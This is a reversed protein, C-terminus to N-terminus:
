INSNSESKLLHAINQKTRGNQVQSELAMSHAANIMDKVLSINQGPHREKFHRIVQIKSNHDKIKACLPCSYGFVKKKPPIHAEFTRHTRSTLPITRFM